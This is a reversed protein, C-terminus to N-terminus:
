RLQTKIRQKYINCKTEGGIDRSYAKIADDFVETIGPFNNNYFECIANTLIANGIGNKSNVWKYYNQIKDIQEKYDGIEVLLEKEFTDEEGQFNNNYIKYSGKSANFILAHSLEYLRLQSLYIYQINRSNEDLTVLRYFYISLLLFIRRLGLKNLFNFVEIEFSNISINNVDLNSVITGTAKLFFSYTLTFPLYEALHHFFDGLGYYALPRIEPSSEHNKQNAIQILRSLGNFLTDFRKTDRKWQKVETLALKVNSLQRQEKYKENETSLIELNRFWCNCADEFRGNVENLSARQENLYYIFQYDNESGNPVLNIGNILEESFCYNKLHFFICSLFYKAIFNPKISRSEIFLKLLECQRELKNNIEDFTNGFKINRNFKNKNSNNFFIRNISEYLHDEFPESFGADNAHRQLFTIKGPLDNYLRNVSDPIHERDFVYWFIHKANEEIISFTDPDDDSYGCCLVNKNSIIEKFIEKRINPLALSFDLLSVSVESLEQISGHLHFINFINSKNESIEKKINEERYQNFHVNKYYSQYSKNNKNFSKEHLDDLNLTFIDNIGKSICLNSLAMHDLNPQSDNLFNFFSLIEEGLINKMIYIVYEMRIKESFKISKLSTWFKNKAIDDNDFALDFFLKILSEVISRSLPNSSPSEYSIGAGTFLVLDKGDKLEKILSTEDQNIQRTM